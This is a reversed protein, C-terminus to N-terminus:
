LSNKTKPFLRVWIEKLIISLYTMFISTLSYQKRLHNFLSLELILAFKNFNIISLLISRIHSRVFM